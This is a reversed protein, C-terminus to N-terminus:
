DTDTTLNPLMWRRGRSTRVLEVGEGLQRLKQNTRSVVSELSGQPAFSHANMRRELRGPPVGEGPELAVAWLVAFEEPALLVEEEDIAATMSQPDLLLPGARLPLGPIREGASRRQEMMVRRLAANLVALLEGPSFPKTVLHDAGRDLAEIRFSTSTETCLFLIPIRSIDRLQQILVLGTLSPLDQEVIIACFDKRPVLQLAALGDGVVQVDHGGFQLGATIFFAM